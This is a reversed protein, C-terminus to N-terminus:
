YQSRQGKLQVKLRKGGIEFGNLNSIANAASLENDFSVFGFGKSLGTVKDKYVTASMVTGYSSFLTMLNMDVFTEPVNYVFLNANPPGRDDGGSVSAPQQQGIQGMGFPLGGMGGLAAALNQQGGYGGLNMMGGLGGLGGLGGMGDFLNGGGMGGLGYQALQQQQQQLQQQFQNQPAMGLGGMNMGLGMLGYPQSMGYPNPAAAAPPKQQGSTAYKVSLRKPAGEDQYIENLANIAMQAHDQNTFKVFACGKSQGGEMMVYVEKVPGFQSFLQRVQDETTSKSLMGVFLKYDGAATAGGGGGGGSGGGGGGGPLKDTGAFRVQLTRNALTVKDHISDIALCAQKRTAYSVFGCGKPQQTMKDKLLVVETVTGFPMFLLRLQDENVERPVQGVFLKGPGEDDAM